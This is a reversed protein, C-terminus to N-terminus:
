SNLFYYLRLFKESPGGLRLTERIILYIEVSTKDESIGVGAIVEPKFYFKDQEDFEIVEFGNDHLIKDLGIVLDTSHKGSVNSEGFRITHGCRNIIDVRLSLDISTQISQIAQKVRVGCTHELAFLQKYGDEKTLEVVM